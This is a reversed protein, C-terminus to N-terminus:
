MAFCNDFVRLNTFENWSHCYDFNYDTLIHHRWWISVNEANSARQSPFQGTVPSNGDWLGTVRLKSTKKSRRSFLCNLLCPQYPQHNSVGDRENHRWQLTMYREPIYFYESNGHWHTRNNSAGTRICYLTLNFLRQYPICPTQDASCNADSILYCSRKTSVSADRLNWYLIMFQQKWWRIRSVIFFWEFTYHFVGFVCADNGVALHTNHWIDYDM